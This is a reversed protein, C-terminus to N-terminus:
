RRGRRMTRRVNQASLMGGSVRTEAEPVDAAIGNYSFSIAKRDGADITGDPILGIMYVQGFSLAALRRQPTNIAM